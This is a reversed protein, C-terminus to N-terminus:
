SGSSPVNDISCLYHETYQVLSQYMRHAITRGQSSKNVTDMLLLVYDFRTVECIDHIWIGSSLIPM